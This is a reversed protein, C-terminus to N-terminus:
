IFDKADVCVGDRWIRELDYFLRNENDFIHVIIDAYDMLIWNASEYGEIQKPVAGAKGLDKEVSDTLAQIQNRNKGEAIIFYDALVSVKSIDIVRINEAKKEELANIAIKVMEKSDM